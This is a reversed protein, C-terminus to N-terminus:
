ESDEELNSVVQGNLRVLGIKLLELTHVRPKRCRSEVLAALHRTHGDAVRVERRWLCGGGTGEEKRRQVQPQTGAYHREM